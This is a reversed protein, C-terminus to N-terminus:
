ATKNLLNLLDILAGTLYEKQGADTIKNRENALDNVLDKIKDADKKIKVEEIRELISPLNESKIVEEFKEDKIINKFVSKSKEYAARKSKLLRNFENFKLEMDKYTKQKIFIYIGFLILSFIIGSIFILFADTLFILGGNNLSLALLLSIFCTVLSFAAFFFKGSNKSSEHNPVCEYFKLSDLNRRNEYFRYPMKKFNKIIASETDPDYIKERLQNNLIRFSEKIIYDKSFLHILVLVLFVNLLLFFTGVLLIEESLNNYVFRDFFRAVNDLFGM